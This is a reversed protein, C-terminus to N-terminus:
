AVWTRQMRTRTSVWAIPEQFGEDEDVEMEDAELKGSQFASGDQDKEISGLGKIRMQPSKHSRPSDDMSNLIPADKPKAAVEAGRPKALESQAIERVEALRRKIGEVEELCEGDRLFQHAAHECMSQCWELGSDLNDYMNSDASNLLNFGSRPGLSGLPLAERKAREQATLPSDRTPGMRRTSLFKFNAIRLENESNLKEDSRGDVAIPAATNRDGNEVKTTMGPLLPIPSASIAPLACEAEDDDDVAEMAAMQRMSAMRAAMKGRRMANRSASIHRVLEEFANQVASDYYVIIMSRTRYKPVQSGNSAMSQTKRKRAVPPSMPPLSEQQNAIRQSPQRRVPPPLPGPSSSHHALRVRPAAAPAEPREDSCTGFVVDKTSVQHNLNQKDASETKNDEEDVCRMPTENDKPRLSETSGKNKLSRAAPRYNSDAQALEVQRNAIKTNLDDLIGHWAPVSDVLTQLGEM